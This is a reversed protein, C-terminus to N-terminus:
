YLVKPIQKSMNEIGNKTIRINDELRVGISEDHFYFGPEVTLVMNEELPADYDGSDHVDLGLFHSFGHPFPAEDKGLKKRIKTAEEEMQKQYERILVNPKLKSFAIEQLELVANYIERQRASPKELAWTRSIDAAYREYKAGVDLLILGDRKLLQDNQMYHIVAANGGSAIIPEYAHGDAGLDYFRATLFREVEKETAFFTLQSRVSKLGEGTIDIAKQIVSLEEQQKVQRLRAIELRIDRLEDTMDKLVDALERRAPNSVFGYPEVRFALPELYCIDMSKKKAQAVLVALNDKSAFRSIGSIKKLNETDLEGDWEKAYENQESYLIQTENNETNIILWLDPENLGTVYWFSSDQRFPYSMDASYQMRSHSAIVILSNPVSCALRERNKKFFNVSFNNMQVYYVLM